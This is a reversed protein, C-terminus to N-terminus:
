VQQSQKGVLTDRRLLPLTSRFFYSITQQWSSVAVRVLKWHKISVVGTTRNRHAIPTQFIRFRKQAAAGSILVNPAVADKPLTQYLPEFQKRRMLRYPSNVDKIGGGFLMKVTVRSVWTIFRRSPPSQRDSRIGILFDYHERHKWIKEFEEAPMEDDSDVQFIWDAYRESLYGRLVTPGHGENEKQHVVIHPRAKAIKRARLLTDDKSGDDYVNITYCIGLRRLENDWSQLVGQIAESENYVPMVISLSERM